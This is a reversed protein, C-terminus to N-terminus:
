SKQKFLCLVLLLLVTRSNLGVNSSNYGKVRTRGRVLPSTKSAWDSMTTVDPHDELSNGWGWYAKCNKHVNLVLNVTLKRNQHHDMAEETKQTSARLQAMEREGGGGGGRGGLGNGDRILLRM